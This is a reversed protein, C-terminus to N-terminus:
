KSRQQVVFVGRESPQLDSGVPLVLQRKVAPRFVEAALRGHGIEGAQRHLREQLSAPLNDGLRGADFVAAVDHGQPSKREVSPHHIAV